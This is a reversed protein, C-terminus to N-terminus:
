RWSVKEEVVTFSVPTSQFTGLIAAYKLKRSSEELEKITKQGAVLWPFVSSQYKVTLSYTGPKLGETFRHDTTGYFQGPALLLWEKAVCEGFDNKACEYRHGGVRFTEKVDRGSSDTLRPVFIGEGYYGFVIGKWVYFPEAGVNKVLATVEIPEGTKYTSKSVSLRVDVKPSPATEPLSQASCASVIVACFVTLTPWFSM